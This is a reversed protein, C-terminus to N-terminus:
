KQHAGCNVQPVASAANATPMTLGLAPLADVTGIAYRVKKM